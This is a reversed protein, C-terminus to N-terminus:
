DNETFDSPVDVVAKKLLKKEEIKKKLITYDKMINIILKNHKINNRKNFKLFNYKWNQNVFFFFIIYIFIIIFIKKKKHNKLLIFKHENKM